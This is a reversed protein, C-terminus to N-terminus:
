QSIDIRHSSLFYINQSNSSKFYSTFPSSLHCTKHEAFFSLFINKTKDRAHYLSFVSFKSNEQVSESTSSAYFNYIFHYCFCTRVLFIFIKPIALSLIVQLHLLSIALKTSPLSLSFSTKRRTVLTTCLFFPFNAIRRCQNRHLHLTFITFLTTVSVLKGQMGVLKFFHSLFPPKRIPPPCKNSM